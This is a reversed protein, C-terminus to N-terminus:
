EREHWGTFMMRFLSGATKGSTGLYIHSLMFLLIASASLVGTAMPSVDTDTFRSM